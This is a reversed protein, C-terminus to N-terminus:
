RDMADAVVRRWEVVSSAGGASSTLFVLTACVSSVERSLTM